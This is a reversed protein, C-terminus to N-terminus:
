RSRLALSPSEPVFSFNLLDMTFVFNVIGVDSFGEAPTPHLEHKGWEETSYTREKMSKHILAAANKTGFM